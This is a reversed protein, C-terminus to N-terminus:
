PAVAPVPLQQLAVVAIGTTVNYRVVRSGPILTSSAPAASAPAAILTGDAKYAIADGVAAASTLQMWMGPSQSCAELQAGAEIGPANGGLATYAVFQKPSSLIGIYTGAGGVSVIGNDGAAQVLAVAGFPARQGPTGNYTTKLQVPEARVDGALAQEGPIGWALDDAVTKQFTM